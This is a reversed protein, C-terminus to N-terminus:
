SENKQISKEFFYILVFIGIYAFINFWTHHDIGLPMEWGKDISVLFLGIRMVNIIWIILLGLLSWTIKKIIKAQNSLVYALWFSMVGYGVCGQSIIVGRGNAIRLTYNHEKITTYGLLKAVMQAGYMLSKKIWSIYNFYDDIFKIYLGDKFTLGIILKTGFYFILFILLFKIIFSVLPNTSFM